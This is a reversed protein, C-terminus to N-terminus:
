RRPLFHFRCSVLCATSSEITQRACYRGLSGWRSSMQISTFHVFCSFVVYGSTANCNSPLSPLPIDFFSSMARQLTTCVPNACNNQCNARQIEVRATPVTILKRSEKDKRQQCRKKGHCLGSRSLQIHRSEVHLRAREQIHLRTELVRSGRGCLDTMNDKMELDSDSQHGLVNM